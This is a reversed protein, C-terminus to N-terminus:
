RSDTGLEDAVEADSLTVVNERGLQFRDIVGAEEMDSLTRSVKAKSWEVTEVIEAQRMRGGERELLQEVREDPSLLDPDPQPDPSPSEPSEAPPGDGGAPQAAPEGEDRKRLWWRLGVAGGVVAVVFGIVDVPSDPDTGLRTELHDNLLDGDTDPDTPDLGMDLERGDLLGDDDTDPDTANSPGAVEIGDPAGDDDSDPNRPDLGERAVEVGDPVSDDDVDPDLLDLDLERERQNSLRDLDLDGNKEAVAIPVRVSDIPEGSGATRERLRVTLNHRGSTVNPPTALPLRVSRASDRVTVYRCTTRGHGVISLCAEYQVFSGDGPSILAEASANGTRWVITTGNQVFAGDGTVVVDAIQGGSQAAAPTTTADAAPAPWVTPAGLGAGSLALAVTVIVLLARWSRGRALSM